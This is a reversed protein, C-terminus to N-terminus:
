TAQHLDSARLAWLTRWALLGARRIQAREVVGPRDRPSHYAAFPMGGLRAAVFGAKEFSWHDSARNTCRRAPIGLDGARAVFARALTAPGRGGTCVRVAEGTGVRDLVAMGALGRREAAGLSSVYARSGYHHGGDGPARPEEAAFAVFVITRAGAAGPVRARLQRAIEMISATGSANDDAGNHVKGTSDPDLSSCGGLGLHDYHAGVVVVQGALRGKGHQVGIVNKVPAPKLGCHALVPATPDISFGQFYGRTGGPVLGAQQFERAIYAAASDLGATGIGRGERADDSLYKVDRLIREASARSIAAAPAQAALRPAGLAIACLTWLLTRRTTKM